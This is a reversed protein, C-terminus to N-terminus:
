RGGMWSPWKRDSTPNLKEIAQAVEDCFERSVDEPGLALVGKMRGKSGEPVGNVELGLEHTFLAINLKTRINMLSAGVVIAPTQSGMRAWVLVTATLVIASTLLAESNNNLWGGEKKESRTECCALCEELPNGLEHSTFYDRLAQQLEPKLQNFYCKRTSRLYDSM